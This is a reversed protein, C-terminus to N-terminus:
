KVAVALIVNAMGIFGSAWAGRYDGMVALFGCSTFAGGAALGSLFPRIRTM